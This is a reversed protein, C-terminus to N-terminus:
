SHVTLLSLTNSTGKRLMRSKEACFPCPLGTARKAFSGPAGDKATAAFPPIPKLQHRLRFIQPLLIEFDFLSGEAATPIVLSHRSALLFAGGSALPVFNLFLRTSAFLLADTTQFVEGRFLHTVNTAAPVAPWRGPPSSSIFVNTTMAADNSSITTPIVKM